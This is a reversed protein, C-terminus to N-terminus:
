FSFTYYTVGDFDIETYDEILTEAVKGWDISDRLFKPMAKLADENVDHTQQKCYDEMYSQRILTAGYPWDTTAAEGQTAFNRLRVFEEHDEITATGDEIDAMLEEIRSIIEDSSIMDSNNDM